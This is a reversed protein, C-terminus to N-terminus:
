KQVMKGPLLPAIEPFATMSVTFALLIADFPIIGLM